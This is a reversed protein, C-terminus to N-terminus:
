LATWGRKLCNGRSLAFVGPAYADEPIPLPFERLPIEQSSKMRRLVMSWADSNVTIEPTLSTWARIEMRQLNRNYRTRCSGVHFTSVPRNLAFYGRKGLEMPLIPLPGTKGEVLSSTLAAVRKYGRAYAMNSHDLFAEISSTDVRHHCWVKKLRLPTVDVGLYADCGCSERFFGDTCCKGDNFRLGVTPMLQLLAKYYKRKVIIDDGFVYVSDLATQRRVGYMSRIACVALVFFVVSQIPFCLCSGMTAFKELRIARGSPLMAEPSRTAQLADLLGPTLRFLNRVLELGVRDSAEKMDLTVWRQDASSELALRRNIAQSSFNIRGKTVKHRELWAMIARGLGQQIWQYELPECSIIRPARSDKPVLIVKTTGAERSELSGYRRYNDCVDGLSYAFYDTFPYIREISSYIRSFSHKEHNKEKTAVAGPGHQPVIDRYDFKWFVNNMMESARRLYDSNPILCFKTLEGDVREFGALTEEQLKQSVPMELKYLYYLLQRLARVSAIVLLGFDEKSAEYSQVRLRGEEDFVMRWLCRFLEPTEWGREKRFTLPVAFPEVGLLARDLAKGLMPLTKTLFSFGEKTCRYRIEELDRKVESSPLLCADAIDEVLNSYLGLYLGQDISNKTDM